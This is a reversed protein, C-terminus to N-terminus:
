PRLIAGMGQLLRQEARAAHQELDGQIQKLLPAQHLLTCLAAVREKRSSEKELATSYILFPALNYTWYFVVRKDRAAGEGQNVSLPTNRNDILCLAPIGLRWANVCIHYTDTIVLDLQRLRCLAELPSLPKEQPEGLEPLQATWAARQDLFFPARGWDLWNLEGGIERQLELLFAKTQALDPQSRGFFIGLKPVTRPVPAPCFRDLTESRLLLACDTGLACPSEGAQLQNVQFASFPERMWVRRVGRVLRKLDQQYARNLRDEASNFLLTGGYILTKALIEPPAEALFLFRRVRLLAEEESTCFGQQVLQARVADRYIRGHLFDGWYLILDSELIESLPVMSYAFPSNPIQCRPPYLVAFDAEAKPFHRNLLSWAALDVSYMGSNCGFTQSACLVSIRM